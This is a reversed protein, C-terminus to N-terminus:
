WSGQLSLLHTFFGESKPVVCTVTAAFPFPWEPWGEPCQTCADEGPSGLAGLQWPDGMRVGSHPFM